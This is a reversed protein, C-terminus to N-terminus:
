VVLVLVGVGGVDVGRGVCVVLLEWTWVGGVYSVDGSSVGGGEGGGGGGDGGARRGFSLVPLSVEWYGGGADEPSIYDGAWYAGDAYAEASDLYAGPDEEGVEVGRREGGDEGGALESSPNAPIDVDERLEEDGIERRPEQQRM